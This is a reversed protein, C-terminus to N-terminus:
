ILSLITVKALVYYTEVDEEGDLIAPITLIQLSIAAIIATPVTHIMYSILLLQMMHMRTLDLSMTIKANLCFIIQGLTILYLM